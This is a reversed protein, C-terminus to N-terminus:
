SKVSSVFDGGFYTQSLEALTGDEKLSKLRKNILIKTIDKVM